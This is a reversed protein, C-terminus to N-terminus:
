DQPVGKFGARELCARMCKDFSAGFDSTPLAEDTCEAICKKKAEIYKSRNPTACQLARNHTKVETESGKPFRRRPWPYQQPYPVPFPFPRLKSPVPIPIIQLGLPDYSSTSQNELFSYLNLSSVEALPDASMWRQWQPAYFRYGYYSLGTSPDREKSSFKFRCLDSGTQAILSGFASYTCTGATTTGDRMAIVDGRHSNHLYYRQNNRTVAVLGGIDGALAVGRTFTEYLEGTSSALGVIDWGDYLYVYRAVSGGSVEAKAIRHSGVDYWNELVVVGNSTVKTLRDAWDWQYIWNTTGAVWNTLNGNGDYKFSESADPIQKIVRRQQTSSNGSVDRATVTLINEGWSDIPVNPLSFTGDTASVQTQIGKCEAWTNYWKNSAPGPEVEGTITTTTGSPVDSTSSPAKAVLENDANYLCKTSASANRWNGAEDYAWSNTAFGAIGNTFSIENTLQGTQDYGYQVINTGNNTIALINGGADWGYDYCAVLSAGNTIGISLLRSESDYSHTVVDGNGYGKKWLRGAGDYQYWANATTVGNTLQVVNTLRNMVDYGYDARISDTFGQLGTILWGAMSM